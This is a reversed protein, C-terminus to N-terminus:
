GITTKWQNLPFTQGSNQKVSIRRKSPVVDVSKALDTAKQFCLSFAQECRQQAIVDRVNRTEQYASVINLNTALLHKTLPQMFGLVYNTIVATIITEFSEM